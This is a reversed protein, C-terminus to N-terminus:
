SFSRYREVFAVTLFFRSLYLFLIKFKFVQKKRSFPLVFTSPSHTRFCFHHSLIVLCLYKNGVIKRDCATIRGSSGANHLKFSWLFELPSVFTLLIGVATFVNKYCLLSYPIESKTSPSSKDIEVPLDFVLNDFM